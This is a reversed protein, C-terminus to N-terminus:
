HNVRLASLHGLPQLLVSPFRTDPFVRGHTRIGRTLLEDRPAAGDYVVHTSMAHVGSTLSWVHLDHVDRVGHVGSIADRLAVLNIEAPAGELLVGVAERVLVWTRPLIFLSIAMSVLPDAYRWGTLWMTPAAVIVGLSSVMDSL